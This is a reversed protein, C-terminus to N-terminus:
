ALISRVVINEVCWGLRWFYGNGLDSHVLITIRNRNQLIKLRCREKKLLKFRFVWHFSKCTPNGLSIIDMKPVKKIIDGANNPYRDTGRAGLAGDILFTRETGLKEEKLLAGRAGWTGFEVLARKAGLAGSGLLTVSALLGFCTM